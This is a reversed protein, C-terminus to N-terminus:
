SQKKYIELLETKTEKKNTSKLPVGVEGAVVVGAGFIKGSASPNELSSSKSCDRQRTSKLM